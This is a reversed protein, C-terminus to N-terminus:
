VRLEAVLSGEPENGVQVKGYTRPLLKTENPLLDIRSFGAERAFSELLARSYAFKHQGDCFLYNVAQALPDDFRRPWTSTAGGQAIVLAHEISPVALRFVGEPTLVRRVERLLALADDPLMHELMHSSYAFFASQDTFPLRNRLDLWLDRKRFLNGEVNIMGERYDNGSGLHLYHGEGYAPRLFRVRALVANPKSGLRALTFYADKLTQGIM